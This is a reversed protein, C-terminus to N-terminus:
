VTHLMDTLIACLIFTGLLFLVTNDLTKCVSCKFNAFNVIANCCCGDKAFVGSFIHILMSSFLKLQRVNALPRWSIDRYFGHM